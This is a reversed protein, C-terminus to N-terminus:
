FYQVIKVLPKFLLAIPPFIIENRYMAKLDFFLSNIRNIINKNSVGGVMMKVFVQQLYFSPVQRLHMFRLMLEYDAATGFELSYNGFRDFVQRKCYFTPHPPMWGRNFMGKKYQGARWKRVIGKGPKIYDLDGYVIDAANSAFAQAIDSLIHNGAFVDDANLIGIVDGRALAIGKNMADYIGNDPASVFLRIDKIYKEIISVTNDTSAGDIIIYEIDQYDQSVVSRICQEITSQANYCVTIVSIKPYHM